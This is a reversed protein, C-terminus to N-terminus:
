EGREGWACFGDPYVVTIEGCIGHCLREEGETVCHRCERCRTIEKADYVKAFTELDRYKSNVTVIYTKEM